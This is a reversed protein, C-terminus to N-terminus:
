VLLLFSVCEGFDLTLSFTEKGGLHYLSKLASLELQTGELKTIITQHTKHRGLDKGRTLGM